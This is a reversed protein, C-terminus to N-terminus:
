RSAKGRPAVIPAWFEREQKVFTEFKAPTYDLM